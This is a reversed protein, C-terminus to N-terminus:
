YNQGIRTSIKKLFAQVAQVQADSTGPAVVKAHVRGRQVHGVVTSSSKKYKARESASVTTWGSGTVYSDYFSQAKGSSSFQNCFVNIRRDGNKYNQTCAAEMGQDVYKEYGGNYIDAIGDGEGYKYTSSVVSWGSVDGSTPLCKGLKTDSPSAALAISVLAVVLVGCMLLFRKSM